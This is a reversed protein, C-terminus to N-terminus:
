ERRGRSLIWLWILSFTALMAGASRVAPRPACVMAMGIAAAVCAATMLWIVSDDELKIAM